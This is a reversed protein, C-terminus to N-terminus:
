QAPLTRSSRIGSAYLYWSRTGLRALTDCGNLDLGSLKLLTTPHMGHCTHCTRTCYRLGAMHM